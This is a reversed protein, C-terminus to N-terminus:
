SGGACVSIILVSPLDSSRKAQPLQKAKRQQSSDGPAVRSHSGMPVSRDEGAGVTPKSCLYINKANSLHTHLKDQATYLGISTHTCCPTSCGSKQRIVLNKWSKHSCFERCSHRRKWGQYQLGQTSRPASCACPLTEKRRKSGPVNEWLM